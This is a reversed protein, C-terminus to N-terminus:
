HTSGRTIGATIGAFGFGPASGQPAPAPTDKQSGLIFRQLGNTLLFLGADRTPAKRGIYTAGCVGDCNSLVVCAEIPNPVQAGREIEDAFRRLADAIENSM